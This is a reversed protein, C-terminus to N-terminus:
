ESKWLSVWTPHFHHEPQLFAGYNSKRRYGAGEMMAAVEEPAFESETEHILVTKSWRQLHPAICRPGEAGAFYGQMYLMDFPNPPIWSGLNACLVTAEHCLARAAECEKPDLDVGFVVRPSTRGEWALWRLNRGGGCPADAISDPNIRRVIDRAMLYSGFQMYPLLTPHPEPPMMMEVSLIGNGIRLGGARFPWGAAASLADIGNLMAAIKAEALEVKPGRDKESTLPIRRSRVRRM